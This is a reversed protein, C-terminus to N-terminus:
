ARAAAAAAAARIAAEEARRQEDWSLFAERQSRLGAVNTRAIDLRGQATDRERLLNDRRVTHQDFEAKAAAVAREADIKKQEAVAAAADAESKAQRASSNRNGQEIQARRLGDLVQQQNKTVLGLLQSRDIAAGPTTAALYTVMSDAGPRTYAQTAFDDFNQRARGVEAGADSLDAQTQVVVAAAADAAERANQLDVLAKNVEERKRAVADDLEQLQQNVVGVQNILAGVETIGADVRAGAEAIEGDSPNPPAPPVAATPGAALAVTVSVLLGLAVSLGRSRGTPGKEHM